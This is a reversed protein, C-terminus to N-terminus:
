DHTSGEAAHAGPAKAPYVPDSHGAFSKPELGANNDIDKNGGIVFVFVVTIYLIAGVVTVFFTKKALSDPTIDQKAM